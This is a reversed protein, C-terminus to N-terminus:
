FVKYPKSTYIIGVTNKDRPDFRKLMEYLKEAREQAGHQTAYNDEEVRRGRRTVVYCASGEKDLYRRTIKVMARISAYYNFTTL